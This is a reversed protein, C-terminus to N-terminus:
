PLRNSIHGLRQALYPEIIPMVIRGDWFLFSVISVANELIFLPAVVPSHPLLHSFLPISFYPAFLPIADVLFLAAFHLLKPVIKPIPM